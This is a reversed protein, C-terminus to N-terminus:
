INNVHFESSFQFRGSGDSLLIHDLTGVSESGLVMTCALLRVECGVAAKMRITGLQDKM